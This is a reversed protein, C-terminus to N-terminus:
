SRYRNLATWHAQRPDAALASAPLGSRRRDHCLPRLRPRRRCAPRQCIGRPKAQIFSLGREAAMRRGVRAIEAQELRQLLDRPARVGGEASRTVYGIDILSQRRGDLCAAVERGFGAQALSTRNPSALEPDLWTAGDSTVQSDLDLFSLTRVIFDKGHSRTDYTAGRDAIDNPIKWHDADLREVISARRLAELRARARISWNAQQASVFASRIMSSRWYASRRPPAFAPSFLLACGNGDGIDSKLAVHM